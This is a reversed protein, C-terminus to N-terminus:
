CPLDRGRSHSYSPIVRQLVDAERDQPGSGSLCLERLNPNAQLLRHFQEVTPRVNSAHSSLQLFTLDASSSALADWDVHVGALTLHKLHPLMDATEESGRSLFGTDKLNEPQFRDTFSVFDNCRMLVLSQLQPAGTQAVSPNMATLAAHMPAWTDTLITLSKWRSLHPLLLAIVKSMQGPTFLANYSATEVEIGVDAETFDWDPDRSDILITLPHHRSRALCTTIHRADLNRQSILEETICINAWLSAQGLAVQRWRRSVSSLTLPVRITETNINLPASPDNPKIGPEITALVCLDFIESLLEVPLECM